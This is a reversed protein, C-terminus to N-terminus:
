AQDPLGPGIVISKEREVLALGPKGKKPKRVYKAQTYIVAAKKEGRAKSFHAAVQAAERIDSPSPETKKERKRLVVHSGPVDQAHFWFDDPRAYKFTLFDNEKNNRGV